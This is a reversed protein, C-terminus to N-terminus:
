SHKNIVRHLLASLASLHHDLTFNHIIRDHGLSGMKAALESDLILKAMANAM